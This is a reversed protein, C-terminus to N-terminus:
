RRIIDATRYLSPSSNVPQLIWPWLPAGPLPDIQKGPAPATTEAEGAATSEASPAESAELAKIEEPVFSCASLLGALLLGALLLALFQNRHKM